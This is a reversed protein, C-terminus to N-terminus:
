ADFMATGEQMMRHLCSTISAMLIYSPSSSEFTDMWDNLAETTVRGSVNHLVSTQTLAPLTKHLSHIVMDAGQTVASPPLMPHRGLHAGHAEDVILISDHNHVVQAIAKVDSLIGEYTPSTIIVGDYHKDAFAKEVMEATIPGPVDSAIEEPTLVGTEFHGLRVAHPISRHCNSAMLLKGGFPVTAMLASLNSATSGNVSFITAETGYFAAARDMEEQLIGSAEHLDDFGPIETIDLSALAFDGNIFPAAASSRKHGPMHFGYDDSSRYSLLADELNRHAATTEVCGPVLAGTTEDKYRNDEPLMTM